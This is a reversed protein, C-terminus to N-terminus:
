ESQEFPVRVFLQGHLTVVASTQHPDIRSPLSVIKKFPTVGWPNDAHEPEGSIVLRGAPDSQVRVEERLLGPVLAYVEFCDKTKQVNIKVWDAPPGIDVVASDLQPKSVKTRAAKVTHEVYPKKRKLLGINKLQKERKQMSIPNKDKIIPDSVEGNGLLRQSHWGQMARAAADRRARGSGSAQQNEINMPESHSATPVNLEGGHTKHREYDLLAKEYFGRFTWSVTTCTKPPKFSEGVQRWLKCSTVKDYGGLRTVARWLKLCNLGEGYFKPPKFEMSRERFFNELEKMFASQDEETGSESGESMHDEDLLFSHKSNSNGNNVPTTVDKENQIQPKIDSLRACPLNPENHSTSSTLTDTNGTTKTDPVQCAETKAVAVAPEATELHCTTTTNHDGDTNSQPLEIDETKVDSASLTDPKVLDQDGNLLGSSPPSDQTPQDPNSQSDTINNNILPSATGNLVPILTEDLSVSHPPPHSDHPEHEHEHENEHEHEHEHEHEDVQANPNPLAVEVTAAVEEQGSEENEKEKEKSDSM